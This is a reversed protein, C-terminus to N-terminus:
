NEAGPIIGTVFKSIYKQGYFESLVLFFCILALLLFVMSKDM